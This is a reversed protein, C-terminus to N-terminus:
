LTGLLIAASKRIRDWHEADERSIESRGGADGGSHGKLPFLPDLGGNQRDGVRAHDLGMYMRNGRGAGDLDTYLRGERGASELDEYLRDERGAMGRPMQQSRKLSPVPPKLGGVANRERSTDADNFRNLALARRSAGGAKGGKWLSGTPHEPAGVYQDFSPTPGGLPPLFAEPPSPRQRRTSYLGGAGERREKSRWDVSKANDNSGVGYVRWAEARKIRKRAGHSRWACQLPCLNTKPEKYM